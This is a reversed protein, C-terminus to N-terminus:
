VFFDLMEAPNKSSTAPSAGAYMADVLIGMGIIRIFPGVSNALSEVVMSLITSKERGSIDNLLLWLNKWEQKSM